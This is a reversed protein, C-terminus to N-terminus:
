NMQINGADQIYVDLGTREDKERMWMFESMNPQESFTMFFYGTKVVQGYGPRACYLVLKSKFISAYCSKLYVIDGENILEGAEDFFNCLISGSNDAILFQSLKSENKLKNRSVLSLLIVQIDLNKDGPKIDAIRKNTIYNTDHQTFFLDM